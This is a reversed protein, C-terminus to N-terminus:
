RGWCETVTAGSTANIIGRAGTHNVVFDGCKDNANGGPDNRYAVLTFATTSASPLAVPTADPDATVTTCGPTPLTVGAALTGDLLCVTYRGGEVRELGAALTTSYRGQATATREMWQAAQLLASKANARQARMVYSQYSPIAIAALIGIIAVVIMVEILTFGRAKKGPKSSM